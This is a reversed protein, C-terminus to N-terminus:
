GIISIIYYFLSNWPYRFSFFIKKKEFQMYHVDDDKFDTPSKTTQASSNFQGRMTSFLPIENSTFQSFRERKLFFFLFM